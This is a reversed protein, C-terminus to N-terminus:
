VKGIGKVHQCLQVRFMSQDRTGDAARPSLTHPMRYWSAAIVHPHQWHAFVAMNQLEKRYYSWILLLPKVDTLQEHSM